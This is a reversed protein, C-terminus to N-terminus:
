SIATRFVQILHTHPLSPSPLSRVCYKPSSVKQSPSTFAADGKSPISLGDSEETFRPRRTLANVFMRKASSILSNINPFNSHVMEVTRYLGYTLCTVHTMKHFLVQFPGMDKIVSPEAATVYLCCKTMCFIM